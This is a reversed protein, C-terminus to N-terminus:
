SYEANQKDPLPPLLLEPLGGLKPLGAQVAAPSTPGFASLEVALKNYVSGTAHVSDDLWGSSMAEM